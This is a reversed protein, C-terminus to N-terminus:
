CACAFRAFSWALSLSRIEEFAWTFWAFFSRSLIRAPGSASRKIGGDCYGLGLNGNSLGLVREFLGLEDRRKIARDGRHVDDDTLGARRAACGARDM